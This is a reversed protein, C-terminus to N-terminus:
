IYKRFVFDKFIKLLGSFCIEQQWLDDLLGFLGLLQSDLNSKDIQRQPWNVM